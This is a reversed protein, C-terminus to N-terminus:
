GGFDVDADADVSSDWYQVHLSSDRMGRSWGCIRRCDCEVIRYIRGLRGVYLRCLRPEFDTQSLNYTM